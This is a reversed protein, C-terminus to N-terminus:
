KLLKELIGKNIESQSNFVSLVRNMLSNIILLITNFFLTSFGLCLWVVTSLDPHVVFISIEFISISFSIFVLLGNKIKQLRSPAKTDPNVNFKKIFKKSEEVIYMAGSIIQIVAALIMIWDITNM